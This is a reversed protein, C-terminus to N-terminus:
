FVKDFAPLLAPISAEPVSVDVTVDAGAGGVKMAQFVKKLEPLKASRDLGKKKADNAEKRAKEGDKPTMGSVRIAVAVTKGLALSAWGGKVDDNINFAAWAAGATNAKGLYTALDGSAAAGKMMAELPAPSDDDVSIAVLDPALWAAYLKSNADLAYETIKGTVKTAIKAKPEIKALVKTACDTAKTQDTGALQIVLVGKEKVDVAFAIDGVMAPLEMGCTAKVLDLMAGIDKDESRLFDMVKPFSPTARLAAADISGVVNTGAPLKGKLAGWSKTEAAATSALFLSGVLVVRSLKM